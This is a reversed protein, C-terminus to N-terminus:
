FLGGLDRDNNQKVTTKDLQEKSQADLLHVELESHGDFTFEKILTEAQKIFFVDSKSIQSGNSFFILYV